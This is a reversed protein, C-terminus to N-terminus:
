PPANRLRRLQEETRGLQARLAEIEQELLEIRAARSAQAPGAHCRAQLAALQKDLERRLLMRGKARADGIEEEIASLQAACATDDVAAAPQQAFAPAALAALFAASFAM